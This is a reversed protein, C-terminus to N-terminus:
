RTDDGPPPVLDYGGGKAEPNPCLFPGLDGGTHYVYVKEEHGLVIRHGEVLAQTYSKGPEPCGLSGDSWTVEEISILEIDTESVGLRTALDVVAEEVLDM